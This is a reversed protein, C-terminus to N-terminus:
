NAKGKNVALGIDKCANLLVYANKEITRIDNCTSSIIMQM